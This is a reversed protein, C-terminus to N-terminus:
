PKESQSNEQPNDTTEQSNSVTVEYYKTVLEEAIPDNGAKGHLKRHESRSGCRHLNGKRNDLTDGNIHHIIDGPHANMIYRHMAILQGFHSHIAYTGQPTTQGHWSVCALKQFDENDCKAVKGCALEIFRM